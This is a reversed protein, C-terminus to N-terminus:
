NSSSSYPNLNRAAEIMAQNAADLELDDGKRCSIQFSEKYRMPNGAVLHSKGPRIEGLLGDYNLGIDDLERNLIAEPEACFEEYRVARSRSGMHEILPHVLDKYFTQWYNINKRIGRHQLHKSGIQSEVDRVLVVPIVDQPRLKWLHFARFPDKSSDVVYQAKGAAGIADILEWNNAAIERTRANEMKSYVKWGLLRVLCRRSLGRMRYLLSVQHGISGSFSMKYANPEDQMLRRTESSCHLLVDHWFDCETFCTGCTCVDERQPCVKGDRLFQWPLFTLEGTSCVSPHQGLALDLLTSGSHGAALIYILKAM